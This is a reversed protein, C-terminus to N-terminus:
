PQNPVCQQLYLMWTLRPCCWTRYQAARLLSHWECGHPTACEAEPSLSGGALKWLRNGIPQGPLLEDWCVQVPLLESVLDVARRWILM